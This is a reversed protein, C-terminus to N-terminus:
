RVGSCKLPNVIYVSRVNADIFTCFLVTRKIIPQLAWRETVCM